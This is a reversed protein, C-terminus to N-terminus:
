PRPKAMVMPLKRQLIVLHHITTDSRVGESAAPEPSADEEEDPYDSEINIRTAM